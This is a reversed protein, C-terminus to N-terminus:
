MQLCLGDRIVRSVSWRFGQDPCPSVLLTSASASAKVHEGQLPVTIEPSSSGGKDETVHPQLYKMLATQSQPRQTHATQLHIYSQLM